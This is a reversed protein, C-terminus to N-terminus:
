GEPISILYTLSFSGIIAAVTNLYVNILHLFFPFFSLSCSVLAGSVPEGRLASMAEEVDEPM